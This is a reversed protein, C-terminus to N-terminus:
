LCRCQARGRLLVKRWPLTSPVAVSPWHIHWFVGIRARPAPRWIYQPVPSYVHVWDVTGPASAGIAAVAVTHNLEEYANWAAVDFYTRELVGPCLPWLTGNAMGNSYLDATQADASVPPLTYTAQGSPQDAEGLALWTDGLESIVPDFATTVGGISAAM